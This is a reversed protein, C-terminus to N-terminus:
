RCKKNYSREHLPAQWASSQIMIAKNNNIIIINPEYEGSLVPYASPGLTLVSQEEIGASNRYM